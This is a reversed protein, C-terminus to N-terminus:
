FQEFYARVESQKLSFPINPITLVYNPGARKRKITDHQHLTSQHAHRSGNKGGEDHYSGTEIKAKPTPLQFQQPASTAEHFNYTREYHGSRLNSDSFVRKLRIMRGDMSLAELSSTMAKKFSEANSFTIHAIGRHREPNSNFTPMDFDVMNQFHEFFEKVESQRRLYPINTVELTFNSGDKNRNTDDNDDYDDNSHLSSLPQSNGASTQQQTASHPQSEEEGFAQVTNAGACILPIRCHSCPRCFHLPRHDAVSGPIVKKKRIVREDLSLSDTNSELAKQQSEASSYTIQAFGHHTEPDKYVPM